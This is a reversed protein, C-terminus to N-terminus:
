EITYICGNGKNLLMKAAQFHGVQCALNLTCGEQYEGSIGAGKTCLICLDSM